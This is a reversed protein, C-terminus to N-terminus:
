DASQILQQHSGERDSRLVTLQGFLWAAARTPLFTHDQQQKEEDPLIKVQRSSLM